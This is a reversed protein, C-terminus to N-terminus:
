AQALLFQIIGDELFSALFKDTFGFEVVVFQTGVAQAFADIVKDVPANGFAVVEELVELENGM